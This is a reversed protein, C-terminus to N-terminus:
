IVAQNTNLLREKLFKKLVPPHPFSAESYHVYLKTINQKFCCNKEEMGM